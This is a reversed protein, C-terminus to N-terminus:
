AFLLSSTLRRTVTPITAAAPLLLLRQCECDVYGSLAQSAAM